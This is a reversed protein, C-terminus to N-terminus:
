KELEEQWPRITEFFKDRVEEALPEGPPLVEALPNIKVGHKVMEYHLHPGTSFGTSGVLGIVDGQKVKQGYRVSIKSLHAYNTSYTGNHRLSITNGYSNKWGAFTVTGDGVARIPTGLPAAYDIARHGTSVNFAEVYRLGTTFGSSIYKFAVPAKLFMKQVSNGEKDFYGANGQEDDFYYVSYPQGSNIYLGALVRGPRVYQNNLYKEEYILRFTDGVRPDMAFDITWQFADALAIIAREDIEQELAAEYLSSKIEGEKFVVKTEYPIPRILAELEGNIYKVSLEEESNLKYILEKFENDVFAFVLELNFGSRIQALDYVDRSAEYIEAILEPSLTSKAMVAGYTDGATIELVEYRFEPVVEEESVAPEANRSSHAVSLLSKGGWFFLAVILIFGGILFYKKTINMIM